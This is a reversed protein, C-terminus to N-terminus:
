ALAVTLGTAARDHELALHDVLRRPLHGLLDGGATTGRPQAASHVQQEEVLAALDLLAADEREAPDDHAVDVPRLETLDPLVRQGGRAPREVALDLPVADARPLYRRREGVRDEGCERVRRDRRVDRQEVELESRHARGLEEARGLVDVRGAQHEEGLAEVVQEVGDVVEPRITTSLRKRSSSRRRRRKKASRVFSPLGYM